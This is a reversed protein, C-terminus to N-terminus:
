VYTVCVREGVYCDDTTCKKGANDYGNSNSIGYIRLEFIVHNSTSNTAGNAVCVISVLWVLSNLKM